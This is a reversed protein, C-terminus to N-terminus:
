ISLGEILMVRAMSENKMDLYQVREEDSAYAAFLEKSPLSLLHVDFPQGVTSEIVNDKGPRVRYLLTGNYKSLIPLVRDEFELFLDEKGENIFVLQTYYLM